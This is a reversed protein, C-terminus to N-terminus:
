CGIDNWPVKCQKAFECRNKNKEDTKEDLEALYQPYVENCILPLVNTTIPTIENENNINFKLSSKDNNIPTFSDGNDKNYIGAIQAYKKIDNNTDEYNVYLFQPTEKNFGLSNYDSSYGSTFKNDINYSTLPAIKTDIECKFRLEDDPIKSAHPNSKILKIEDDTLEKIKWYDPCIVDNNKPKRDKTPQLNYISYVLYIIIFIAGFVYTVVFPMFKDFIYESGIDTYNIFVLLIVAVLAYVGCLIMTGQFAEVKKKNFDNIESETLVISSCSM